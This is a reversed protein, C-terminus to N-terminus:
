VEVVDNAPCIQENISDTVLLSLQGLGVVSLMVSSCSFFSVVHFSSKLTHIMRRRKKKIIKNLKNIQFYSCAKWFTDIVFEISRTLSIVRLYALETGQRYVRYENM